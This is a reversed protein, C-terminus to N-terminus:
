WRSDRRRGCHRTRWSTVEGPQAPTGASSRGPRAAPKPQSRAVAEMVRDSFSEPLDPPGLSDVLGALKKLKDAEARLAADEALRERLRAAEADTLAGDLAAHLLEQDSRGTM